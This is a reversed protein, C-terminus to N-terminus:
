LNEKDGKLIRDLVEAGIIRTIESWDRRVIDIGKMERVWKPKFLDKNSIAFFESLNELKM